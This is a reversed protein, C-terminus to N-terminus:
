KHKLMSGVGIAGIALLGLVSTPEPVSSVSFNDITVNNNDEEGPLFSDSINTAIGTIGASLPNETDVFSVEYVQETTQDFLRGTLQNGIVRFEAFYPTNQDLEVFEEVFINEIDGEIVERLFIQNTEFDIGFVYTDETVLNIRAYLLIRDNTGEDGDELGAPNLLASVMVNEAIINPYLLTTTSAGGEAVTQDESLRLVNNGDSLTQIDPMFEGFVLGTSFDQVYLVDSPLGSEFDLTVAKASNNGIFIPALIAATALSKVTISWLSKVANRKNVQNTIM